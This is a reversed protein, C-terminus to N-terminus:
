IECFIIQWQSIIKEDSISNFDYNINFRSGQLNRIFENLTNVYIIEEENINFAYKNENETPKVLFGCQTIEFNNTKIEPLTNPSILERPGSHCDTFYVPKNFIFSELIITPLGEISSFSILADFSNFVEDKADIHGFFFIQDECNLISVYEKLRELEPGDGYIKLNVDGGLQNLEKVVRIALDINKQIHLRSVIGLSIKKENDNITKTNKLEIQTINYICNSNQLKFYKKARNEAEKSVFINKKRRMKTFILKIIIKKLLGSSKYYGYLDTHIVNITKKYGLFSLFFGAFIADFHMLIIITDSKYKKLYRIAHFVRSFLNNGNSLMNFLDTKIKKEKFASYLSKSANKVGGNNDSFVIVVDSKM